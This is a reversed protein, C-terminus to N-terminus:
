LEGRKLLTDLDQELQELLAKDYATGEGISIKLKLEKIRRNLDVVAERYSQQALAEHSVWRQDGAWAAVAILVLLAGYIAKASGMIKGLREIMM